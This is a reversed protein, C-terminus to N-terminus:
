FDHNAGRGPLQQSVVHQGRRRHRHRGGRLLRGGLLGALPDVRQSRLQPLSHSGGRAVAKRRSRSLIRGAIRLDQGSSAMPPPRHEAGRFAHQDARGRGATHGSRLAQQVRGTDGHRLGDASHGAHEAQGIHHDAFQEASGSNSSGPRRNRSEVLNPVNGAAIRLGLADGSMVTGNLFQAGTWASAVTTLENITVREPLKTGLTAMLTIAPNPGKGSALKSKGGAAILYLVGVDGKGDALALDYSGDDSTKAEALKQPASPGALWLTVDAGSIPAGGAEVRGRIRDAAFASVSMLAVSIALAAYKVTLAIPQKM